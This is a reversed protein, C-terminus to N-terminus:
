GPTKPSCPVTTGSRTPSKPPPPSSSPNSTCPRPSRATPQPRGALRRDPGRPRRRPPALAEDRVRACRTCRGSARRSSSRIPSRATGTPPARHRRGCSPSRGAGAAGLARRRPRLPLAGGRRRPHRARRHASRDGAGRGAVAADRGPHDRRALRLARRAGAGAQRRRPYAPLRGAPADRRLARQPPSARLRRPRLARVAGGGPTARRSPAPRPQAAGARRQRHASFWPLLLDRQPMFACHALRAAPAAAGDVAIEGPEPERLGCILELLTSKGCGSPGVVGLVGHPKVSLDIREITQLNGYSHGLERISVAGIPPPETTPSPRADTLATAKAPM